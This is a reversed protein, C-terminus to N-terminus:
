LVIEKWFLCAKPLNTGVVNKGIGVTQLLLLVQNNMVNKKQDLLM